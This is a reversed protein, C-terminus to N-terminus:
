DSRANLNEPKRFGLVMFVPFRTGVPLLWDRDQTDPIDVLKVLVLGAALFADLIDELTRHIYCAKIGRRWLGGYRAITGSAAYDTVHERIVASYPNNFALAVPAGPRAMHALTQAFGHHDEIDNLALYSGIADFRNAFAPQPQSLDAVEYTITRRPDMEKAQAILRPSIDLGTVTAGHDHLLRTFAGNGCAADLVAKGKIDGLLSLLRAAMVNTDASLPGRRQLERAYEDAYTDWPNSVASM